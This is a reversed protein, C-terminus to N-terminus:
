KLEHYVKQLLSKNRELYATLSEPEIGFDAAEQPDVQYGEANQWLYSDIGYKFLGSAIADQETQSIAEFRKGTVSSLVDAVEAMTLKDGTIAFEKRNFKDPEAFAEAAFRGIDNPSIWDIKTEPAIPTIIKGQAITPFMVETMPPLLNVMIFPPKIITWSAFGAAKVADIAAAKEEWYLPEWRGEEWGAFNKHDGARAVSTHVIQQVGAAKAATILNNAHRTEEGKNGPHSGMQVSFVGTAGEAAKTLSDLNDFTAEVLAVNKAALAKAAESNKDRVIARVAIQKALLAAIVAGGQTGTAGAVLILPKNSM